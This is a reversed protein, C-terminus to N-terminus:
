KTIRLNAEFLVPHVCDHHENGFISNFRIEFYMENLSKVFFPSLASLERSIERSM